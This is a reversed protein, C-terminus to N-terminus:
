PRVEPTAAHSEEHNQGRKQTPKLPWSSAEVSVAALLSGTEEPQCPIAAWHRDTGACAKLAGGAPGGTCLNSGVVTTATGHRTRSRSASRAALSNEVASSSRPPWLRVARHLRPPPPGAYSLHSPLLAPRWRPFAIPTHALSHMCQRAEPRASTVKFEIFGFGKSKRTEKDTIVRVSRIATGLTHFFGEIDRETSEYKLGTIKLQAIVCTPTVRPALPPRACDGM